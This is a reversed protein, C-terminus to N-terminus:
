VWMKPGPKKVNFIMLMILGDLYDPSCGLYEKMKEKSILKKKSDDADIRDRKLCMLLQRKIEEEQEPTCEIKLEKKNILEALKFACQSKLNFFEKSSIAKAGGHFTVINKIYSELYEGMGDSDAVVNSHSVKQEIMLGRLTMEIDKGDSKPKDTAITVVGGNMVNAIFRDRGQMALDASIRMRGTKIVHNNTFLDNVSEYDVLASPDDDYEFNGYVLRQVTTQDANMLNDIYSQKNYPNDTPLSKIFMMDKGITGDAQPQVFDNYIWNRRPNCTYLMKPNVNWGDGSLISLRGRLVSRAKSAIQQAEDLFLDTLDYSGLRDFEPDSPINKIERFFVRSGNNFEIISTQFNFRYDEDKILGYHNVAKLFTLLTTDRLKTFEERAIMGYSEPMTLRNFLQWNCGLWSKGGRSGGGFLLEVILDNKLYELAQQQKDFLGLKSFDNRKYLELLIQLQHNM